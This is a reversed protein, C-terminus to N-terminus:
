LIDPHLGGQFGVAKFRLSGFFAWSGLLGSVLPALWLSIWLSM